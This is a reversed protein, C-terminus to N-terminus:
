TLTRNTALETYSPHSDEHTGAAIVAGCVSPSACPDPPQFDSIQTGACGPVPAPERGPPLSGRYGRTAPLTTERSEESPM